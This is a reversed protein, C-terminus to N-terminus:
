SGALLQGIRLDQNVQALVLRLGPERELVATATGDFDEDVEVLDILEVEGVAGAEFGVEKDFEMVDVYNGRVEVAHGTECGNRGDDLM